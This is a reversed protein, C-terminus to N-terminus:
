SPSLTLRWPAPMAAPCRPAPTSRRHCPRPRAPFIPSSPSRPASNAWRRPSALIAGVVLGPLALPLTVLIFTWARAGLTGLADELRRDIAEFSLRMARVMLPFGMVAAPSRRARGASRSSSASIDALFPGSPGPAWAPDAPHYGTVVPPLVLPLHVFGNVLTKGPFNWRALAYATFIGLPLSAVTAVIAIKCRCGCRRGM